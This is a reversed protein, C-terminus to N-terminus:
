QFFSKFFKQKISEEMDDEPEEESGEEDEFSDVSDDASPVVPEELGEESDLGDLGEESDIELGEEDGDGEFDDDLDEGSEESGFSDSAAPTSISPSPSVGADTAIPESVVPEPIPAPMPAVPEPPLTAQPTQYDGASTIDAILDPTIPGSSSLGQLKLVARDIEEPTSTAAWTLLSKVTETDLSIPQSPTVQPVDPYFPMEAENMLRKLKMRWTTEKM